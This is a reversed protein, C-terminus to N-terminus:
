KLEVLSCEYVKDTSPQSYVERGNITDPELMGMFSGLVAAFIVGAMFGLIAREM